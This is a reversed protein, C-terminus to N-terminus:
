THHTSNSVVAAETGFTASRRHIYSLHKFYRQVAPIYIIRAVTDPASGGKTETLSTETLSFLLPHAPM